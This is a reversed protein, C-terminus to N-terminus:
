EGDRGGKGNFLRLQSSPDAEDLPEIRNAYDRITDLEGGTFIVQRDRFRRGAPVKGDQRWRWLTQRTVGVDRAVDAATFYKVGDVEIPMISSQHEPQVADFKDGLPARRRMSDRVTDETLSRRVAGQCVAIADQFAVCYQRM